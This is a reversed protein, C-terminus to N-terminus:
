GVVFCWLQKKSVIVGTVEGILTVPLIKLTFTRKKKSFGFGLDSPDHHILPVSSDKGLTSGSDKGM